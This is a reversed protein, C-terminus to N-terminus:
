TYFHDYGNTALTLINKQADKVTLGEGARIEGIRTLPIALESALDEIKKRNITPATFCLEYDDGGALLCSIGLSKHLHKKLISSSPLDAMYILAAKESEALIHGLDAMLGDSIDIVSHALGVLRQGLEVRAIPTLLAPLCQAIEDPQLVVRQLEHNLALAADGLHGSIWVEDGLRAGSRRLAKGAAVEGIIQVSINLPGSTTDGGILEVQHVDALSFFGDSFKNLWTINKKVLDEPLTLALLTWRPKAGMAAIDSLNVALSKYGLKYPDTDNFFHKDCVLTDTSIVLEKQASVPIIAADDGIGLVANPTSRKFYRHIIDFESCM